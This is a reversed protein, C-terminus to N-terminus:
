WQKPTIVMTAIKNPSVATSGTTVNVYNSPLNAGNFGGVYNTIDVGTVGDTEGATNMIDCYYSNFSNFTTGDKYVTIPFAVGTGYMWFGNSPYGTGGINSPSMDSMIILSGGVLTVGYNGYNPEKYDPGPGTSSYIQYDFMQGFDTQDLKFSWSTSGLQSYYYYVPPGSGTAGTAGTAGYGTAGTAGTAGTSGTAGYGTAGTAGTSGTAGTAGYGTAGTAGTPGTPGGFSGPMGQPGIPGRAGTAGEPGEPGPTCCNQSSLYSRSYKSM